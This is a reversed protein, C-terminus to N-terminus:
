AFALRGVVAAQTDILATAMQALPEVFVAASAAAAEADLGTQVRDAATAQADLGTQVRDAATAQADLGTQLRDAATAQVDLGTQVRDAATAQADLGTQVRDAATAEADLATLRQSEAAAAASASAAGAQETAIDAQATVLALAGQATRLAQEAADIPPYPARMVIEDLRCDSNPVAVRVDLFKSGDPLWARVRYSSASAGLANPWLNLVAIGDDGATAETTDPAVFGGDLDTRDLTARYLAGAAPAGSQDAARCTVAVTILPM